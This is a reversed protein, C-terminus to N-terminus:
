EHPFEAVWNGTISGTRPIVYVERGAGRAALAVARPLYGGGAILGLTSM